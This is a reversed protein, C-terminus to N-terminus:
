FIESLTRKLELDTGDKDKIRNLESDEAINRIELYKIWEIAFDITKAEIIIDM